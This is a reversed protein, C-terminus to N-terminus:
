TKYIALECKIKEESNLCSFKYFSEYIDNVLKLAAFHKEDMYKHVYVTFDRQCKM